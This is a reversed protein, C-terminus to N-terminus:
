NFNSFVYSFTHCVRGPLDIELKYVIEATSNAWDICFSVTERLLM